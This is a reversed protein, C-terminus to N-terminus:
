GAANPLYDWFIMLLTHDLLTSVKAGTAAANSLPITIPEDQSVNPRGDGLTVLPLDFSIGANSKVLHLDLSVDATDRVAQIAAVDAFYATANADVVFTGATVDFAGFVGIGKNPSINNNISISFEQLFAFLQDPAEDGDVLRSLATRAVDSSTNFADAEVLAVKTATGLSSKLTNAGSQNEDITTSNTAVFALDVTIKNATTLNITLENPIAGELYEAQELTLDADDNAGLTRELQYSRRKILNPDSENKIVRGFFIQITETTSAETVMDQDSKDIVIETASISRVRKFGNNAANSFSTGATDGGIYIWEGPILGLTTLDKISSTLKAFGSSADVDLDGADFQFGVTRLRANAPPTAEDVLNEAVTISGAAVATIRKLGNNATNSFGSALILEGVKFGGPAATFDSNTDYTKNIGDVNTIPIQSNATKLTGDSNYVAEASYAKTDPKERYDAFFFGRLLRELNTQTLDTQFGGSADLDTALGKKRQRSPNIPNRSVTTVQGGFDSYENPELPYWIQEPGPLVGISAEEAFRLGTINSDIKNVLTM